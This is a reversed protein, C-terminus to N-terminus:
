WYGRQQEAENLHENEWVAYAIWATVRADEELMIAAIVDYPDRLQRQRESTLDRKAEVGM